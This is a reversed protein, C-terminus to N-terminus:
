TPLILHYNNNHTHKERNERERRKSNYPGVSHMKLRNLPQTCKELVLATRALTTIEEQCRKEDAVTIAADAGPTKCPNPNATKPNKESLKKM